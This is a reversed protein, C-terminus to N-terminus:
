GYSRLFGHYVASFKKM